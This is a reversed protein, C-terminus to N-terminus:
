SIQSDDVGGHERRSELARLVAVKAEVARLRNEIGEVRGAQTWAITATAVVGGVAIAAMVWAPEVM